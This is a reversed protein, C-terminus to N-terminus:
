SKNRQKGNIVSNIHNDTKLQEKKTIFVEKIMTHEYNNNINITKEGLIDRVTEIARINGKKAEKVLANLIYRQTETDLISNLDDKMSSRARRVKGSKIGGKRGFERAEEGAEFPKRLNKNNM